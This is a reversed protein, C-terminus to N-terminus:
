CKQAISGKSPDERLVNLCVCSLMESFAQSECASLLHKLFIGRAPLIFYLYTLTLM